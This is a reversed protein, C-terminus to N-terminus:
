FSKQYSRQAATFQYGLWTNVALMPANEADNSTYAATIGAVAARRLSVSKVLNALGRGRHERLVGTFGSWSRGTALDAEVFTGAVALGDVIAM